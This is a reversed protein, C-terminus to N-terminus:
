SGLLRRLPNAVSSTAGNLVVGAVPRNAARLGAVTTALETRETYGFRVVLLMPDNPRALPLMRADLRPVGLDVVAAPYRNLMGEFEALQQRREEDSSVPCCTALDLRPWDTSRIQLSGDLVLEPARTGPPIFTRHLTPHRLHADVLVARLGLRQSLDIALASAVTSAGDGPRCGSVLLRVSNDVVALPALQEALRRIANSRAMRGPADDIVPLPILQGTGSKSKGNGSDGYGLALRVQSAQEVLSRNIAEHYRSM